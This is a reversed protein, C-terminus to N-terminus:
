GTPRCGCSERIRLTSTYSRHHAAADQDLLVQVATDAMQELPQVVTTLRPWVYDAIVTGDFSIIAIDDPVRIGREGFATLMGIAIQDSAALVARPLM